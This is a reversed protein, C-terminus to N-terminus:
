RHLSPRGKMLYSVVYGEYILILIFISVLVSVVAYMLYYKGRFYGDRINDDYTEESLVRLCDFTVYIIRVILTSIVISIVVVAISQGESPQQSQELPKQQM